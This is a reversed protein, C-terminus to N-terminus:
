KKRCLRRYVPEDKTVIQSAEGPFDPAEEERTKCNLRYRIGETTEDPRKDGVVTFLNYTVVEGEHAVSDTDLYEIAGIQM